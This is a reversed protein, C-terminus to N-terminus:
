RAGHIRLDATGGFCYAFRGRADRAGRRKQMFAGGFVFRQYFRVTKIGIHTSFVGLAITEATDSALM